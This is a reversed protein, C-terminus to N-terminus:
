DSGPLTALFVKGFTGRGLLTQIKFDEFKVNANKRYGVMMSGQRADAIEEEMAMNDIRKDIAKNYDQFNFEASQAVGGYNGKADWPNDEVNGGKQKLEENYEDEGKIEQDLLRTSEDPLDYM